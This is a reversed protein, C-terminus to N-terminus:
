ADAVSADYTHAALHELPKVQRNQGLQALDRGFKGLKFAGIDQLTQLFFLGRRLSQARRPLRTLLGAVTGLIKKVARKFKKQIQRNKQADCLHPRPAERAGFRFAPM